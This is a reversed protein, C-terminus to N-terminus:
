KKEWKTKSVKIYGHEVMEEETFYSKGNYKTDILERFKDAHNKRNKFNGNTKPHCNDCLMVFYNTNEGIYYDKEHHDKANLNTWYKGGDDVWCCTKKEYFVHHCNDNCLIPKGCLECKLVGNNIEINFIKVRPKVREFMECYKPPNRNIFSHGYWAYNILKDDYAKKISEGTRMRETQDEYRKLGREILKKLEEPNEFKKKMWNSHDKGREPNEKHYRTLAESNKKRSEPTIKAKKISESIKERYEPTSKIKSQSESFKKRYEPDEWDKKRLESNRKRVEPDGHTCKACKWGHPFRKNFYCPPQPRSEKGCDKCFRTVKNVGM